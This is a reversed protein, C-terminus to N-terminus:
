ELGKTTFKITGGELPNGATDRVRALTIIYATENALRRGPLMKLTLKKGEWMAEIGIVDGGERRLEARGQLVKESFKFVFTTALPADKAGNLVTGEVIEPPIDDGPKKDPKVKYKISKMGISGDPNGWRFGLSVTGLGNVNPLQFSFEKGAGKVHLGLGPGLQLVFDVQWQGEFFTVPQNFTILIWQKARIFEDKSPIVSVIKAKARSIYEQAISKSEPTNIALLVEVVFDYRWRNLPWQELDKIELLPTLPQISPEGILVLTRNFRDGYKEYQEKTMLALLDVLPIISETGIGALTVVTMQVRNGSDPLLMVKLLEPVSESGLEILRESAKLAVYSDEDGLDIILKEVSISPGLVEQQKELSVGDKVLDQTEEGCGLVLLMLLVWGFKRM